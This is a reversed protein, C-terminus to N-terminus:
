ANSPIPWYYVYYASHSIHGSVSNKRTRIKGCKSKIHLSVRRIWDSHPFIRVQFFETDPCKERLSRGRYNQFDEVLTKPHFKTKLTLFWGTFSFYYFKHLEFLMENEFVTEMFFCFLITFFTKSLVSLLFIQRFFICCMRSHLIPFSYKLCFNWIFM